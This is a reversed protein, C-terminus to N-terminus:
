EAIIEKLATLMVENEPEKRGAIRVYQGEELGIKDRCDRVYVGYRILLLPALIDIPLSKDIEVLCFNAKTSYTQLRDINALAGFFRAAEDLYRLRAAVYDEQFRDEAFLRFFFETLGSINWLYGNAVLARVRDPSTIAYGARIGAIGFDKSMSKILMVNPRETADIALSQRTRQEDEYAFDVFSEDLIVLRLEAFADLMQRMRDAPVYGGNPNNPNILCVTDVGHSYVFEIFDDVNLAFDSERRLRYFLAEQDPRLYEYYPSFTPLIVAVRTGAFRHLAAQIAEIAGNCVFIHDRGVNITRELLAAVHSNQSPYFELVKRLEGTALLDSTLREIFLDTAYPNSLFCADVRISLDPLRDQLTYLSPSHSGSEAKLAHLTHLINQERDTLRPMRSVNDPTTADM